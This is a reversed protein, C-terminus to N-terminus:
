PFPSEAPENGPSHRRDDKDKGSIRAFPMFPRTPHPSCRCLIGAACATSAKRLGGASRVWGARCTNWQSPNVLPFGPPLVPDERGRWASERWLSSAPVGPYAFLFLLALRLKRLDGGLLTNIRETDYAALLNYM